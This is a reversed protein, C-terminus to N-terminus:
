RRKFVSLRQVFFSVVFLSSDICAKAIVPDVGFYLHAIKVGGYSVSMIGFALIVYRSADHKFTPHIILSDLLYSRLFFIYFSM